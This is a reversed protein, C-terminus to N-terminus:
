VQKEPRMYLEQKGKERIVEKWSGTKFILSVIGSKPLFDCGTRCLRDPLETFSPNHGFLIVTDMEDSIESLIENLSNLNINFYLQKRILINDPNFEFEKAFIIATEIARFAHSSIYADPIIEKNKLRVAMQQSVVKGKTTLTREVDTFQPSPEEARGHRVFILRKM